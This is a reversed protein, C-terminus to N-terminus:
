HSPAPFCIFREQMIAVGAFVILCAVTLRLMMGTFKMAQARDMSTKRLAGLKAHM